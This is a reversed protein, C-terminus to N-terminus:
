HAVKWVIRVKYGLKDELKAIFNNNGYKSEVTDIIEFCITKALDQFFSEM